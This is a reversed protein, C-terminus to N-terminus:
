EGNKEGSEPSSIRVAEALNDQLLELADCDQIWGNEILTNLRNAAVSLHKHINNIREINNTDATM